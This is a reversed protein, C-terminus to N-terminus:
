TGATICSKLMDRASILSMSVGQHQRLLNSAAGSERVQKHLDLVMSALKIGTTPRALTCEHTVMLSALDDYGAGVQIRVGNATVSCSTTVQLYGCFNTVPNAAQRRPACNCPRGM